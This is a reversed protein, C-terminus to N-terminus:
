FRTSATANVRNGGALDRRNSFQHGFELGISTSGARSGIIGGVNIRAGFGAGGSKVTDMEVTTARALSGVGGAVFIYPAFGGETGLRAAPPALEARMTAGSDVNFSGGPFVSVADEADLAFQEPLLLPQGFSTQGRATLGLTFNGPLAASIGIAGQLSRFANRAGQRSSPLSATTSRGALGQSFTLSFSQSVRDGQARSAIALRLASYSDRNIDISFQPAHLNQTIIEVGLRADVTDRYTRHLPFKVGFQGRSFTALTAPTNAAAASRTRALLYDGSATLGNGGIPLTLGAGILRYRSPSFQGGALAYAQDGAGLLSNLTVSANWQWRGLSAPLRNESGLGIQLRDLTGEVTLRVGGAQEGRSLASRLRVGGLEGALVLARELERQMLHRRGVLHGLRKGVTAQLSQPIGHLDVTEIWGDTIVVAIPGNQEIRQPPVIVRAFVYGGRVYERELERAADFVQSLPLTRGSVAEILRANAAGMEAFAGAIEVSGVTVVHNTSQEAYPQPLESGPPDIAPPPVVPAIARPVVQSPSITQAFAPLSAICLCAVGFAIRIVLVSRSHPGVAAM